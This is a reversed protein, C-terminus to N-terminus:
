ARLDSEGGRPVSDAEGCRVICRTNPSRIDLSNFTLKAGKGRGVIEVM